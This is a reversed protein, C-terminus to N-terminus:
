IAAAIQKVSADLRQGIGRTFAAEVKLFSRMHCPFGSPFSLATLPFLAVALEDVLQHVDVAHCLHDLAAATKSKRPPDASPILLPPDAEAVALRAFHRLRDALRGVSRLPSECANREPFPARQVMIHQTAM